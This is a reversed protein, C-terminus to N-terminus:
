NHLLLLNMCKHLPTTTVPCMMHLLEVIPESPTCICIGLGYVCCIVAWNHSFYWLRYRLRYQAGYSTGCGTSSTYVMASIVCCVAPVVCCASVTAGGLFLYTCTTWLAWHYCFYMYNYQVYICVPSFSGSSSVLCVVSSSPPSDRVPLHYVEHEKWVSGQYPLFIKVCLVVCFCM